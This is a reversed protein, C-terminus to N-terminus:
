GAQKGKRPLIVLKFSQSGIAMLAGDQSFIHMRGHGYGASIAEVHIDCLVWETPVVRVIRLTNDLSRGGARTGLANSATSPVFDAAIALGAADFPRRKSKMWVLVHGDETVPERSFIGFRGRVHRIDFAAHIDEHAEAHAVVSPCVEPAPVDPMAPWEREPADASPVACSVLGSFSTQRDQRGIVSVQSVGRGRVTEQARLDVDTGTAPATDFQVSARVCARQTVQEAVLVAAALGAGGFLHRRGAVGTGVPDTISLRYAGSAAADQLEPFQHKM